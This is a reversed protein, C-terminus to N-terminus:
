YAYLNCYILEILNLFPKKKIKKDGLLSLSGFLSQATIFIVNLRKSYIDKNCRM